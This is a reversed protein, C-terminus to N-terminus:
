DDNKVYTTLQSSSSGMKEMTNAIEKNKEITDGFRDTLYTHRLNNVSIKAGFIKNLRQNLKVSNLKNGNVDFLLYENPNINVWKLLIAQLTKPVKVSQEGYHKKTKYHNFYLSGRNYYNQEDKTINKVRFETYDLLRRPPIFLGGLLAVIIYEQISQLDTMTLSQKKYIQKADKELRDFVEKIKEKEIWNEQQTETKQQTKIFSNYKNIDTLMLKRYDENDTLVVLASLISKRKNPPVDKIYEIIEKTKDFNYLKIPEDDFVKKYLNRLISSYTTLSSDSLSSRKSKLEEKLSMRYM